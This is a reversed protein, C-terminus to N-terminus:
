GGIEVMNKKTYIEKDLQHEEPKQSMSELIIKELDDGQRVAKRLDVEIDSHLCLKLQGTSTLRVRNCNVCFKCTMPRILGIKGKSNPLKYYEAPSSIDEREIPYLNKDAELVKEVSIFRDQPFKTAEGMPMLEIFRVDIKRDKTLNIFDKIENENINGMLVVNIKISHFNMNCVLDLSELVDELNDKLTIDQFTVPNLTDLSLNIRRVGANYLQEGYKKLLIGNTTIALDEVLPMSGIKNVLEMINPRVLPEGGTIRIKKVGLNTFAKVIKEIEEFTLIDSHSILKTGDKPMCYKCRLNCRDTVSLRLYTIERGFADIMNEGVKVKWM